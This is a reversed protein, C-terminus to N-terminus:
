RSRSGGFRSRSPISPMSHSAPASKYARTFTHGGGITPRHEGGRFPAVQYGHGWGGYEFGSPEYYGAGMGGGEEYGYGGVPIFCSSLLFMLTCLVFAFALWRLWRLILINM